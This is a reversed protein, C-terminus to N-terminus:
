SIGTMSSTNTSLVDSLPLLKEQRSWSVIYLSPTSTYIWKNKVQASSLSLHVVASGSRKERLFSGWHGNVLLNSPGWLRDPSKPFSFFRKWSGPNLGPDDMAFGLRLVSYAIGTGWSLVICHLVAPLVGQLLTMRYFSIVTEWNTLFNGTSKPVRLSGVATNRLRQSVAARYIRKEFSSPAAGVFKSRFVKRIKKLNM